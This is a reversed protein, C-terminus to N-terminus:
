RYPDDKDYKHEYTSKAWDYKHCCYNKSRAGLQKPKRALVREDALQRTPKHQIDENIFIPDVSMM